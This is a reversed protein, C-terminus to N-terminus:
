NRFQKHCSACNRGQRTWLTEASRRDEASFPPKTQKLFSHLEWADREARELRQIFEIGRSKASDMRHMERYYEALLIAEKTADLDPHDPPTRFDAKRISQLHEWAADIHVMSDVVASVTAREPFNTSANRLEIATPAKFSEVQKYLGSYEASTGAQRLWAVAQEADWGELGRAILAAAAPGRHKGHHCHILVPGDSIAAAKVLRLANSATTGDYGIPLHIYRIRYKRALDTKPQAGDVSIITKIGLKKLAKFAAETEPSGSSYLRETMRFANEAEPLLIPRPKPDAAPESALASALLVMSVFFKLLLAMPLTQVISISFRQLDFFGWLEGQM